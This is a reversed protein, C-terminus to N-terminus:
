EPVTFCASADSTRPPQLTATSLHILTQELDLHFCIYRSHRVTGTAHGHRHIEMAIHTYILFNFLFHFMLVLVSNSCQCTPYRAFEDEEINEEQVAGSESSQDRRMGVPVLLSDWSIVDSSVPLECVCGYRMDTFRAEIEVLKLSRFGRTQYFFRELIGM